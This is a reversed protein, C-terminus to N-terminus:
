IEEERQILNITKYQMKPVCNHIFSKDEKAENNAYAYIFAILEQM